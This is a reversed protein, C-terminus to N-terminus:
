PEPRIAPDVPGDAVVLNDAPPGAAGHKLADRLMHYFDRRWLFGWHTIWPIRVNHTGALRASEPPVVIGDVPSWFNIMEVDPPLADHGNVEDLLHSGPRAQKAIRLVPLGMIYAFYTGQHPTGMCILRRVYKAGGLYTLYYRAVLGGASHCILDVKDSGDGRRTADIKDRLISAAIRIDGLMAYPLIVDHVRFGDATLRRHFLNWYVHRNGLIGHVLIVPPREPM